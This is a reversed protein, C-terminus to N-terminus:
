IKALIIILWFFVFILLILPWFSSVSICNKREINAESRRVVSCIWIWVQALDQQNIITIDGWWKSGLCSVHELEDLDEGCQGWRLWGPALRTRRGSWNCCWPQWSWLAYRVRPRLPLCRLILNETWVTKINWYWIGDGYEKNISHHVWYSGLLSSQSLVFIILWLWGRPADIMDWSLREFLFLCVFMILMFWWWRSCWPWQGDGHGGHCRQDWGPGFRLLAHQSRFPPWLHLQRACHCDEDLLHSIDLITSSIINANIIFAVLLITVMM